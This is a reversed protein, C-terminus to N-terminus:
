TSCYIAKNSSSKYVAAAMGLPQTQPPTIQQRGTPILRLLRNSGIEFKRLTTEISSRAIWDPDMMDRIVSFLVKDVEQVLKSKINTLEFNIYDKVLKRNSKYKIYNRVDRIVSQNAGKVRSGILLEYLTCGLSFVDSKILMGPVTSEPVQRIESTVIEPAMFAVTGCSRRLCEEYGLPSKTNSKSFFSKLYELKGEEDETLSCSLGYDIYHVNLRDGILINEPKIDRHVVNNEHLVRLGKVLRYAISYRVHISMNRINKGWIADNLEIVNPILDMVIVNSYGLRFYDSICVLYKACDKKIKFMIAKEHEAEDLSTSQKIVVEKGTKVHAGIYVKGFSGEGIFKVLKYNGIM